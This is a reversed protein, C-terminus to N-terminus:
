ADSMEVDENDDDSELSNLLKAEETEREKDQEEMSERMLRAKEEKVERQVAVYAGLPTKNWAVDNLFRSVESKNTPGFEVDSRKEQIFTSNQNLKEVVTSLRKNLKVNTSTKIYRRLSIIVPTVLEPFAINKCYLAFYDGLLDVFQESLGEQYIKTNLYAQTCKINHEFDFAALNPSKKPAKTFATSTLIESLLPYIPIFVGSNQSLRILSKILYFRLPFFQPTPILRIVGLTVQVLPYILQRLPSESGNEKEPQCAFSLVRSWFDLSHCFQWNYVIKYAEASNIKSSKKTTANMTNRLHIALQRIYEFGVQYGLVEDIGFLEAASNKQFNILPMSRMNTKRCSKIFTSYTTKLTTELMSKKFEKTTNILFAFSAIQTELERTTSWVGVISKILEKLIRRYSLLYPMLENVSHLVLAATETNTIDNLLILLSGAHSKVISSVRSVNGGNPLTRAGKVIKYPAMKQIAQPVDKLVMFMLEHFAKEDTIAYKYDEINEEKNLNVAVKFASIINRLLKLSPSDHLQKKWKRVLKLSLEIKEKELEMQESKEEINSNREADEDEDQSDIGDLPNTGAFDLLDKDNEELYKYFEPDKEALKAMSQGMDEEEESSSSDEDSQEKTTKKKLKKNEKPIEIGKEFFTEVSMDKFVEEKASKKLQQQERTGAANAKEQDTKNGRRGQIRKKQIKEKRRQDLTHKLHKSQFKKTSKSVKGM